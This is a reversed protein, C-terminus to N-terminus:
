TKPTSELNQWNARNNDGGEKRKKTKEWFLGTIIDKVRQKEEDTLNEGGYSMNAHNDLFEDLAVVDNKSAWTPVDRGYLYDISVDYYEALKNMTQIDPENRNNEIHSYSARTLGLDKSVQEQTKGLANRLAKIREGIM